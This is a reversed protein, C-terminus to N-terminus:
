DGTRAAGAVVRTQDAVRAEGAHFAGSVEPRHRAGVLARADDMTKEEVRLLVTFVTSRSICPGTPRRSASNSIGALRPTVPSPSTAVPAGVPMRAATTSPWGCGCNPPVM